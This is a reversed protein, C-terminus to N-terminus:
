QFMAGTDVIQNDQTAGVLEKVRELAETTFESYLKQARNAAGRPIKYGDKRLLDTMEKFLAPEVSIKDSLYSDTKEPPMIYIAADVGILHAIQPSLWSWLAQLTEVCDEKGLDDGRVVVCESPLPMPEVFLRNLAFTTLVGIRELSKFRMVIDRAPPYNFLWENRQANGSNSIVPPSNIMAILTEKYQFLPWMPNQEALLRHPKTLVHKSTIYGVKSLEKEAQALEVGLLTPINSSDNTNIILLHTASEVTNHTYFDTEGITKFNYKGEM